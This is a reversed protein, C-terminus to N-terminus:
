LPVEITATTGCPVNQELVLGAGVTYLAHLRARVNELGLGDTNMPDSFGLGTDSVSLRLLGNTKIAKVLIRGGDIKPEIGHKVANEVLPQILMPPFPLKLLDDPIEITFDLRPGLRMKFISLYDRLVESEQELTSIDERSRELALRLSNTLHQLMTKASNQERDILSIVNALTNFLFHPEIQAQLM